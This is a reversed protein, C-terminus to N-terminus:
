ADCDTELQERHELRQDGHTGRKSRKNERCLKTLLDLFQKQIYDHSFKHEALRLASSCLSQYLELDFQIRKLGEVVASVDPSEVGFAHQMRNWQMGSSTVPGWLILPRGWKAMEVLKSPFNTEMKRRAKPDFSQPILFADASAMWADFVRREAFPLWNGSALMQTKFAESWCPNSGRVELQIFPDSETARLLAELMPGYETLNGAYLVRMPSSCNTSPASTKVQTTAPVPFLVHSNAHDGLREKMGPSVCLALDSETYLRQFDLELKSRVRDSVNAVDPWWDHFFTVLPLDHKKAFSQAVHFQDGHAVTVVIADPYSAAKVDPQFWKGRLGLILQESLRRLGTKSLWGCLRRFSFALSWTSNRNATQILNVSASEVLHRHLVVNGASTPEPLVSSILIVNVSTQPARAL